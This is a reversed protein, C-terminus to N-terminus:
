HGGQALIKVVQFANVHIHFPHGVPPNTGSTLTWEEVGGLPLTRDIRKPDAIPVLRRVAALVLETAIPPVASLAAFDDPADIRRKQGQVSTPNALISHHV